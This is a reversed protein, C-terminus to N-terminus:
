GFRTVVVGGLRSSINLHFELSNKKQHRFLKADLLYNETARSYVASLGGGSVVMVKLRVLPKAVVYTTTETLCGIM